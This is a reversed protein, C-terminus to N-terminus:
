STLCGNCLIDGGFEIAAKIDGINSECIPVKEHCKDCVVEITPLTWKDTFNNYTAGCYDCCCDGDELTMEARCFRCIMVKQLM